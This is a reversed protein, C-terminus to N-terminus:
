KKDLEVLGDIACQFMREHSKEEKLKVRFAIRHLHQQEFVQKVEKRISTNDKEDLLSKEYLQAYMPDQRDITSSKFVAAELCDLTKRKNDSNMVINEFTSFVHKVLGERPFNGVKKWDHAKKQDVVFKDFNKRTFFDRLEKRATVQSKNLLFEKNLSDYVLDNGVIAYFNMVATKLQEIDKETNNSNELINVITKSIHDSLSDDSTGVSDWYKKNRENKKLLCEAEIQAVFTDFDQKNFFNKLEERPATEDKNLLLRDRLLQHIEDHNMSVGFLSDRLLPICKKKDKFEVITTILNHAHERLQNESAGVENWKKEVLIRTPMYEKIMDVLWNFTSESLLKKLEDCSATKAENLLSKRDLLGWVLDKSVIPTVYFLAKKLHMIDQEADESKKYVNIIVDEIDSLLQPRSYDKGGKYKKNEQQDEPSIAQTRDRKSQNLSLSCQKMEKDMSMVFLSCCLINIVIMM